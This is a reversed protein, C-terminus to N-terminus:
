HQQNVGILIELTSEDQLALLRDRLSSVVEFPNLAGFELDFYIRANDLSLPMIRVLWGTHDRMERDINFWTHDSFWRKIVSDIAALQSDTPPSRLQITVEVSDISGPRIAMEDYSAIKRVPVPRDPM